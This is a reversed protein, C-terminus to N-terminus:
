HSEIQLGIDRCFYLFRVKIRGDPRFDLLRPWADDDGGVGVIFCAGEHGYGMDALGLPFFDKKM